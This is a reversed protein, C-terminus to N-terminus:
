CEYDPENQAEPALKGGAEQMSARVALIRQYLATDTTIRRKLQNLDKETKIDQFLMTLPLIIHFMSYPIPHPGM